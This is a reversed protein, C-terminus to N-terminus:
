KGRVSAGFHRLIPCLRQVYVSRPSVKAILGMPRSDQDVVVAGSDGVKAFSYPGRNRGEGNPGRGSNTIAFVDDYQVLVGDHREIVSTKKSWVWSEKYCPRTGAGYKAVTMGWAPSALTEKFKIGPSSYSKPKSLLEAIAADINRSAPSKGPVVKGAARWKAVHDNTPTGKVWGPQFIPDDNAAAFGSGCLVHGASLIHDKNNVKVVCGFTGPKGFKHSVELGPQVPRQRRPKGFNLFRDLGADQIQAKSHETEPGAAHENSFLHHAVPFGGVCEPLELDDQEGGFQQVVLRAVLTGDHLRKRGTSSTVCAVHRTTASQLQDGLQDNLEDLAMELRTQM